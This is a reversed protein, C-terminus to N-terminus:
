ANATRGRMERVYPRIEASQDGQDSNIYARVADLKSRIQSFKNLAEVRWDPEGPPMPNMEIEKKVLDGYYGDYPPPQFELPNAVPEAQQFDQQVPVPAQMPAQQTPPQMVQQMPQMPAQMPPQMVGQPLSRSMAEMVVPSPPKIQPQEALKKDPMPRQLQEGKINATGRKALASLANLAQTQHMPGPSGQPRETHAFSKRAM